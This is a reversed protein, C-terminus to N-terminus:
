RHSTMRTIQSTLVHMEQKISESDTNKDSSDEESFGAAQPEEPPEAPLPKYPRRSGKYQKPPLPPPETEGALLDQGAHPSKRDHYSDSSYCRSRPRLAPPADLKVRQNKEQTSWGSNSNSGSEEEHIVYDRLGGGAGFLDEMSGVILSQHKSLIDDADDAFPDNVVGSDTLQGKVEGGLTSTPSLSNHVEAQHLIINASAPHMDASGAMASVVPATHSKPVVAPLVLDRKPRMTVNVKLDRLAEASVSRQCRVDKGAFLLIFNM